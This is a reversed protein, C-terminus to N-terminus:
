GTMFFNSWTNWVYFLQSPHDWHLLSGIDDRTVNVSVSRPHTSDTELPAYVFHLESDEEEEQSKKHPLASSHYTGASRTWYRTHHYIGEAETSSQSEPPSDPSAVWMTPDGHEVINVTAYVSEM